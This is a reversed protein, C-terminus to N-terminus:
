YAAFGQASCYLAAGTTVTKLNMATAATGQLPVPFLVTFHPDNLTTSAAGIFGDYIVTSGDLVQLETAAGTGTNDCSLAALYNRIGSAQAAQLTTTTNTTIATGSTSYFWTKEPISYPVVITYDSTSLRPSDTNSTRASAPLTNSAAGFVMPSLLNGEFQTQRLNGYVNFVETAAGSVVQMYRAHVPGAFTVGTASFTTSLASTSASSQGTITVWPGTSNSSEQVSLSAGSGSTISLQFAFSEAGATDIPGLVVQSATPNTITGSQLQGGNCAGATMVLNNFCYSDAPVSLVVTSPNPHSQALASNDDFGCAAALLAAIIAKRM